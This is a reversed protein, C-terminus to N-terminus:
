LTSGFAQHLDTNVTRSIVIQLYLCSSFIKDKFFRKIYPQPLPGKLIKERPGGLIIYGFIDLFMSINIGECLSSFNWTCQM